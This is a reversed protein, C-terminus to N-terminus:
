VATIESTLYSAKDGYWTVHHTKIQEILNNMFVGQDPQTDAFGYWLDLLTCTSFGKYLIMKPNSTLHAFAEIESPKTFFQSHTEVKAWTMRPPKFGTTPDRTIKYLPQHQHHTWLYILMQCDLDTIISGYLFHKHLCMWVVVRRPDYTFPLTSLSAWIKVHRAIDTTTDGPQETPKEEEEVEIDTEQTPPELDKTEYGWMRWILDM